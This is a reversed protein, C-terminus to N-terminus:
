WGVRDGHELSMRRDNLRQFYARQDDFIAKVTSNSRELHGLAEPGFVAMARVAEDPTYPETRGAPDVAAWHARAEAIAREGRATASPLKAKVTASTLGSTLMAASWFASMVIGLLLCSVLRHNNPDWWLAQLGTLLLGVIGAALTTRHPPNEVEITLADAPRIYGDTVLEQYLAGMATDSDLRLPSGDSGTAKAIIQQERTWTEGMKAIARSSAARGRSRPQRVELYSSGLAKSRQLLGHLLMDVVLTDRAWSHHYAILALSTTGLLPQRGPAADEPQREAELHREVAEARIQRDRRFDNWETSKYLAYFVGWVSFLGIWDGM